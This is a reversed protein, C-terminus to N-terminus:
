LNLMIKNISIYEIIFSYYIDYFGSSMNKKYLTGLGDSYWDDCLNIITKLENKDIKISNHFKILFNNRCNFCLNNGFIKKIYCNLCLNTSM